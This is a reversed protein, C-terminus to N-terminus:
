NADKNKKSHKQSLFNAFDMLQMLQKEPLYKSISILKKQYMQVVSMKVEGKTNIFKDTNTM